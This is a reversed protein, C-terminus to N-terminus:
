SIENQAKRKRLFDQVITSVRELDVMECEWVVLVRWGM